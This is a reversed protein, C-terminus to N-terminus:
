SQLTWLKGDHQGFRREIDRMEEASCPTFDRATKLNEELEELNHTGVIATAVTHSLVYRLAVQASIGERRVIPAGDSGFVKMAIKGVEPNGKVTKSGHGGRSMDAANFAVLLTDMAIGRERCRQLTADIVARGTHVTIGVFRVMGEAKARLFVDIARDPQFISEVQQLNVINHIQWLDITDTRLRRLSQELERRLQDGPANCRDCKTALFMEKRRTAAINGIIRESEGYGACTDIYNVGADLARNLIQEALEEVEPRDSRGRIQPNRGRGGGGLGLISVKAKTQGLTRMPMKSFSQSSSGTSPSSAARDDDELARQAIAPVATSAAGNTALAAAAGNLFRRRSLRYTTM